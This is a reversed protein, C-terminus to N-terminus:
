KSSTPPQVLYNAIDFAEGEDLMGSWGQMRGQGKLIIEAIEQVDNLQGIGISPVDGLAAALPGGQGDSGHCLVCDREYLAKGRLVDVEGLQVTRARDDCGCLLLLGILSVALRM